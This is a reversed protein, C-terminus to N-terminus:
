VIINRTQSQNMEFQHTDICDECFEDENILIERGSRRRFFLYSM